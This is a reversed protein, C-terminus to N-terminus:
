AKADPWRPFREMTAALDEVSPAEYMDAVTRFSHGCMGDRINAEIGARAARRKFTHRWAHNPSVDPDTVAVERVWAALRERAKVAPGRYGKPSGAKPPTCFLPAASGYTARVVHAHALVDSAIDAHIPVVRVKGTKVTGAEPTIKVVVGIGPREEVDAARLQTIEGGRAGTYAM